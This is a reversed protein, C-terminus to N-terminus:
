EGKFLKTLFEAAANMLDMRTQGVNLNIQVLETASKILEIKILCDRELKSPDSIASGGNPIDPLEGRM